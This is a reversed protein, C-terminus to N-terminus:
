YSFAHMKNIFTSYQATIAFDNMRNSRKEMQIEIMLITM